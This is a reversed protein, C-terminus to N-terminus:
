CTLWWAHTPCPGAKTRSEILQDFGPGLFSVSSSGARSFMAHDLAVYIGYVTRRQVM